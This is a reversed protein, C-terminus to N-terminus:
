LHGDQKEASPLDGYQAQEASITVFAQACEGGNANLEIHYVPDDNEAAVVLASISFPM